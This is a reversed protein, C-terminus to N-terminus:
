LNLFYRQGPKRQLQRWTFCPIPLPRGIQRRAELLICQRCATRSCAGPLQFSLGKGAWKKSRRLSKKIEALGNLRREEDFDGIWGTYGGCATTVPLGTEEIAVKVEELHDVLLKGDIEYGEFGAEKLFFFKEKMDRPFFAQDQTGIKM